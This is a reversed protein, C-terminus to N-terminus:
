TNSSIEDEVYTEKISFATTLGAKVKATTYKRIRYNFGFKKVYLVVYVADTCHIGFSTDGSKSM